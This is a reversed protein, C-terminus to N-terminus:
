RRHETAVRNDLLDDARLRVRLLPLGSAVGGFRRDDHRGPLDPVVLVLHGLLIGSDQLHGKGGGSLHHQRDAVDGPPRLQARATHLQGGAGIIEGHALASGVEDQIIAGLLELLVAADRLHAVRVLFRDEADHVAVGVLGEPHQGDGPLAHRLQREVRLVLLERRVFLELSAAFAQTQQAEDRGDVRLAVADGLRDQVSATCPDANYHDGAVIQFGGGGDSVVYVDQQRFVVLREVCDVACLQARLPVVDGM